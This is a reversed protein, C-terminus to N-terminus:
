YWAFEEGAEFERRRRPRGVSMLSSLSSIVSGTESLGDSEHVGSFNGADSRMRLHFRQTGVEHRMYDKPLNLPILSRTSLPHSLGTSRRHEGGASRNELLTPCM